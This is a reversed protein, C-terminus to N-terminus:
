SLVTTNFPQDPPYGGIIGRAAIFTGTPDPDPQNENLMSAAAKSVEMLYNQSMVQVLKPDMSLPMILRSALQFSLATVAIPDWLELDTIDTTYILEAPTQDTLIVKGNVGDNSTRFPIAQGVRPNRLGPITITRAMICDAPYAYAYAWNQPATGLDALTVRKEAFGWPFERLTYLRSIDYFLSCMIAQKSQEATSAVLNKFVGIHALAMNYVDVPAM